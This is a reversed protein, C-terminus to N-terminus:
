YSFDSTSLRFLLLLVLLCAPMLLLRGLLFRFFGESALDVFRAFTLGEELDARAARLAIPQRNM